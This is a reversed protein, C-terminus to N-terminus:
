RGNPKDWVLTYRWLLHRRVRSGPLHQAAAERTEPWDTRHLTAPASMTAPGRRLRLLLNLVASGVNLLLDGPRTPPGTWVGLVVLRGGPKLVRQAERAADAFPMHHFSALATVADFHEAPLSSSLFDAQQVIVNRPCRARSAAVQEEDQDLAVVDAYRTALLLAFSGDGSGVDL